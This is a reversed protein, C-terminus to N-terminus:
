APTAGGALRGRHVHRGRAEVVRTADTISLLGALRGNALVLTRNAETGVLRELAAELPHGFRAGAAARAADDPRSRASEAM